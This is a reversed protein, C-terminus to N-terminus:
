QKKKRLRPPEGVKRAKSGTFAEWRDIALQVYRPELEMAYCAQDLQQAAILSSGSGSFPEYTAGPFASMVECALAVPFVAPHEVEIGRAKHRMVRVVSDLIKRPQVIDGAHTYAKVVGDKGRLGKGHNVTGGWKTEKTKAPRKAARNFHFLFEHSPAFRGNWDGPLGPGQDWVYWGFRRWGQERMWAIWGDWYPLWEGDRHILGLNVLVQTSDHVPLNAFVGLMLAQWDSIAAGYDRQQGYPPSTFVLDARSSGMLRAVAPGSTSDGCLLRHAGLEFLDGTKIATPREEPVADPDTKGAKLESGLITSLEDPLFFATLDEGNTLDAQLQEVSWTALEAARNDYIALARKQTDTLGRRRVAIITDGDADIIQLKSLGAQAAGALVGNGALVENKEDIVISRAAGVDKLAAAIMEVNRPSHTRRNHPDPTLGAITTPDRPRAPQRKQPM